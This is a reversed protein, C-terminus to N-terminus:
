GHERTIGIHVDGFSLAPSMRQVHQHVLADGSFLLRQIHHTRGGVCGTGGAEEVLAADFLVVSSRLRARSGPRGERRNATPCLFWAPYSTKGGVKTRRALPPPNTPTPRSPHKSPAAAAQDTGTTALHAPDLDLRRLLQAANLAVVITSVSM